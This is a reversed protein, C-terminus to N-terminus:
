SEGQIKVEDGRRRYRGAWLNRANATKYSHWSVLTVKGVENKQFRQLYFRQETPSSPTTRM